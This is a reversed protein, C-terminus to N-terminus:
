QEDELRDLAAMLLGAASSAQEASPVVRRIATTADVERVINALASMDVGVFDAITRIERAFRDAERAPRRCLALRYANEETCGIQSAVKRWPLGQTEGWKALVHAMFTPTLAVRDAARNLSKMRSAYDDNAM